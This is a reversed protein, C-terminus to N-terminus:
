TNQQTKNSDGATNKHHKQTQTKLQTQQSSKKQTKKQTKKTGSFGRRDSGTQDYLYSVLCGMSFSVQRERLAFMAGLLFRLTPDGSLEFIQGGPGSRRLSAPVARRRRRHRQGCGRIRSGFEACVAPQEKEPAQDPQPDFILIWTCSFMSAAHSRQSRPFREVEGLWPRTEWWRLGSLCGQSLM